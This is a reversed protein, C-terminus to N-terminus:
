VDVIDVILQKLRLGEANLCRGRIGQQGGKRDKVRVHNSYEYDTKKLADIFEFKKMTFLQKEKVWEEYILYLQVTLLGGTGPSPSTCDLVFEEIMDQDETMNRARNTPPSVVSPKSLVERASTSIEAETLSAEVPTAIIAQLVLNPDIDKHDEAWDLLKQRAQLLQICKDSKIQELQIRLELMKQDYIMKRTQENEVEQVIEKLIEICNAITFKDDMKLCEKSAGGNTKVVSFQHKRVHLNQFFLREVERNDLTVEAHILMFEPFDQKNAKTRMSLHDTSGVKIYPSGNILGIDGIYVVKKKVGQVNLISTETVEREVARFHYERVTKLLNEIFQAIVTGAETSLQLVFKQAADITLFHYRKRIVKSGEHSSKRSVSVIYDRDLTLKQNLMKLLLNKDSAKARQCLTDFEIVYDPNSTPRVHFFLSYLDQESKTLTKFVHDHFSASSRKKLCKSLIESM